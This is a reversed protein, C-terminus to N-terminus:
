NVTEANFDIIMFEETAIEGNTGGLIAIEADNTLRTWSFAAIRPAAAIKIPEWKDIKPTYREIVEQALVPHHAETGEGSGSIGGYVYILNSLAIM